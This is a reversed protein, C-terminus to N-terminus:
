VQSAALADVMGTGLPGPRYLAVAAVIDEFCDPKLKKFLGQMGSSELQFVNTTEGSQLLAYTAADDLQVRDLRFDSDKM